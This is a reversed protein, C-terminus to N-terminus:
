LGMYARVRPEILEPSWFPTWVINVAVESVGPMAKVTREVDTVIQPGAPCAPSTLTMDIAVRAGDVRVGYVLGLDIINLNLEPDKVKRLALRVQDETLADAYSLPAGPAGTSRTAESSPAPADSTAERAGDADREPKDSM